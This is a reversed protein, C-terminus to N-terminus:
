QKTVTVEVEYRRSSAADDMSAILMPKGLVVANAARAELERVVATASTLAQDKQEPALSTAEIQSILFLAGERQILNPRISVGVDVYQFSSNVANTLGVPVKSGTKLRVDRGDDTVFVVYNRANVRKGGEREFISYELRFATVPHPAAKAEEKQSEGKQATQAHVLSPCFGAMIMLVFVVHLTKRM